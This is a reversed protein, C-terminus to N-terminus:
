AEAIPGQWGRPSKSGRAAQRTSRRAVGRSVPWFFADEVQWRLPVSLALGERRETRDSARPWGWRLSPVTQRAAQRKPYRVFHSEHSYGGMTHFLAVGFEVRM